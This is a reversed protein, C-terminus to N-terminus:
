TSTRLPTMMKRRRIAGLEVVVNPDPAPIVHGSTKGAFCEGIPTAKRAWTPKDAGAALLACSLSIYFLMVRCMMLRPKKQPVVSGARIGEVKM